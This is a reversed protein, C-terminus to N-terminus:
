SRLRAEREQAALLARWNEPLDSGDPTTRPFIAEAGWEVRDWVVWVKAGPKRLALPVSELPVDRERYGHLRSEIRWMKAILSVVSTAAYVFYRPLQTDRHM